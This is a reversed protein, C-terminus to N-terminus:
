GERGDLFVVRLVSAVAVGVAIYVLRTRCGSPPLARLTCFM